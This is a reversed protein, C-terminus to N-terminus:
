ELMERADWLLGHNVAFVGGGNEMMNHIMKHIDHELSSTTKVSGRCLNERSCHPSRCDACEWCNDVSAGCQLSVRQITM